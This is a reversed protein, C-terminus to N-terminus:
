RSHFFTSTRQTRPQFGRTTGQCGKRKCVIDRMCATYGTTCFCLVRQVTYTGYSNCPFRSIFFSVGHQFVDTGRERGRLWQLLSCETREGTGKVIVATEEHVMKSSEFPSWPVSFRRRINDILELTSLMLLCQSNIGHCRTCPSLAGGDYEEHDAPSNIVMM